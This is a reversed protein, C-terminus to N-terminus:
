QDQHGKELAMLLQPWSRQLVEWGAYRLEVTIGEDEFSATHGLSIGDPPQLRRVQANFREEARLLEPNYRNHLYQLLHQSEQPLNDVPPNTSHWEALLDAMSCGERLHLEVMLEVLKQQKSGGLHYRQLLELLYKQEEVALRQLLTITKLQLVQRHLAVQLNEDLQLLRIREELLHQQPKLGMLPLLALQERAPLLAAAEQLLCAQLIPSKQYAERDHLIRLAFRASAPTQESLVRCAIEKVGARKLALFLFIGGHIEMDRGTGRAAALIPHIQGYSAATREEEPPIDAILFAPLEAPLILRDADCLLYEPTPFRHM